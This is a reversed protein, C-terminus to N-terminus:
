LNLTEAIEMVITKMQEMMEERKESNRANIDNISRVMSNSTIRHTLFQM